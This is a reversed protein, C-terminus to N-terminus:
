AEGGPLGQNGLRIALERRRPKGSRTRPLDDVGIFEKPWKHEPLRTRLHRRLTAPDPMADAPFCAVLREGWVEDPVGVVVVERVGAMERIAEEIEQPHVRYAGSKILDSRRGTIFIFGEEDVTALDGTWLRGGNLAKSTGSPDNWYGTMLNDGLAVIEGEEGPRVPTGDPRVVGLAVGPIGRGISTPRSELQDVPLYSLRASAETQGYMLVIDVGPLADRLRRLHVQPLAGGACTVYRLAPFSREGLGGRQLLLAFTSPVGSLGTCERAALLQCALAPFSLNGLLALSGGVRVHTHLLSNGYSYVFDLLVGVRDTSDLGLYEVISSTNAILSRHSLMVGKPRGTSGSTYIIQAVESGGGAPPGERAVEGFEPAVLLPFGVGAFDWQGRPSVIAAAPRSDGIIREMEAPTLSPLTVAIAGVLLTGYYGALYDAGNPLVLLVRDGPLVGIDGLRQAVRRSAMAIEAYGVPAGSEPFLLPAFGSNSANRLLDDAVHM